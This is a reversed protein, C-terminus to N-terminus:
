TSIKNRLRKSILVNYLKDINSKRLRKIFCDLIHFDKKECLINYKSDHIRTLLDNSLEQLCFNTGIFPLESNWKGLKNKKTENFEENFKTNSMCNGGLIKVSIIVKKFITNISQVKLNNM